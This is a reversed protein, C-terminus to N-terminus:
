QIFELYHLVYINKLFHTLILLALIIKNAHCLFSASTPLVGLTTLKEYINGPLPVRLEFYETLPATYKECSM